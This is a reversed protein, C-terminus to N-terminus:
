KMVGKARALKMKSQKIIHRLACEAGANPKTHQCEEEAIGQCFELAEVLEGILKEREDYTNAAHVIFAADKNGTSDLVNAIIAGGSHNTTVLSWESDTSDKHTRWPTPTHEPKM